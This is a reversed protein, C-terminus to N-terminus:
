LADFAKRTAFRQMRRRRLPVVVARGIYGIEAVHDVHIRDAVCMDAHADIREATRAYMVPSRDSLMIPEIERYHALDHVRAEGEHREVPVPLNAHIGGRRIGHLTEDVQLILKLDGERTVGVVVTM